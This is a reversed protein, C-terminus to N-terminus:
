KMKFDVVYADPTIEGYFYAMDPAREVTANAAIAEPVDRLRAEGKYEELGVADSFRSFDGPNAPANPDGFLPDAALNPANEKGSSYAIFTYFSEDYVAAKVRKETESAAVPCPLFFEYVMRGNKMRATFDKAQGPTFPAGDIKIATFYHYEPDSLNSFAEKEVAAIEQPSIRGDRDLDVMDMIAATFMEDMIWSQKLGALGKADFVFELECEMFVHPHALSLSPWLAMLGLAIFAGAGILGLGGGRIMGPARKAKSSISTNM